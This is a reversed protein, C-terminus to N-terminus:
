LKLIKYQKDSIWGYKYMKDIIMYDNKLYTKLIKYSEDTINKSYGTNCKEHISLDIDFINKMDDKITEQCIVGLIQKKPCKDIFTKLYHNIDERLHHIYNESNKKGNFINPNKELDKCLNDVNKYKNLIKEENRWRHQQEKRDCVLYYRWNFASIFRKIPNRIVIVYNKNPKYVPKGVHVQSFDINKSELESIVTSGGCKGIHIVVLNNM